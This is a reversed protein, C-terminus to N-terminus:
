AAVPLSALRPFVYLRAFALDGADDIEAWPLDGTSTFGVHLGEDALQQVAVNFFENEKGAQILSEVKAFLEKQVGAAFTTIGIYTGSFESRQIRKSMQIIRSGSIVVKMTEDRWAPDVIMSIPAASEVAPILIQPDFVVDANLCVFPEGDLWTRALWFSFINNTKAFMPNQIFFFSRRNAGYTKAVHQIIQDKEYGVVIGIKSIGASFLSEIQHDLITWRSGNFRILCKPRDGHVAHIRTGRGAALILAKM